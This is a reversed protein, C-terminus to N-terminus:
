EAQETDTVTLTMEMGRERHDAVPCYAVYEGPVLDVEMTGSEGPNLDEDLMAEIGQGEIELNHMMQGNNMVEFITPGAALTAPMQIEGDLLVVEVTTEDADPITGPEVGPDMGPDVGNDEPPVVVVADEETQEEPCGAMLMALLALLVLAPVAM